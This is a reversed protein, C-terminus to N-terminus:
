HESTHGVTLSESMVKTELHEDRHNPSRRVM